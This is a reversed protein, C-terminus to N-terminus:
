AGLAAGGKADPPGDLVVAGHLEVARWNAGGFLGDIVRGDRSLPMLIARYLVLGSDTTEYQGGISVPARKDLVTAIFAVAPRLVSGKPADAASHGAPSPWERSVLRSGVHGFVSESPPNRVDLTLCDCWDEGIVAPDVDAPSPFARAGRLQEWYRLLRLVLRRETKWSDDV